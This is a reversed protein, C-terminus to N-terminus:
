SRHTFGLLGSHLFDEVLVGLYATVLQCVQSARSLISGTAKQFLLTTHRHVSSKGPLFQPKDTGTHATSRLDLVFRKSPGTLTELEGVDRVSMDAVFQSFQFPPLPCAVQNLFFPALNHEMGPVNGLTHILPVTM